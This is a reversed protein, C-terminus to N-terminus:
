NKYLPAGRDRLMRLIDVRGHAVAEGLVTHGDKDVLNLNAGRTV